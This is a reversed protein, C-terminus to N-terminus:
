VFDRSVTCFQLFPTASFRLLITRICRIGDVRAIRVFAVVSVLPLDVFTYCISTKSEVLSFASTTHEGPIRTGMRRCCEPM